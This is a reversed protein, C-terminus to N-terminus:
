LLYILVFSQRYTTGEEEVQKWQKKLFAVLISYHEEPIENSDNSKDLDEENESYFQM